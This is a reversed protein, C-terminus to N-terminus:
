GSREDGLVALSAVRRKYRDYIRYYYVWMREAFGSEEQSQIEIHLLVWAEEGDKLWVKILKDVLRKGLEADRVVQQLEKDLSEHRKKWDIQAHAKPFFFGVFEEFYNDLILKWPSDYDSQIEDTM